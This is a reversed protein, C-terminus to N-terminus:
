LEVKGEILVSQFGTLECFLQKAAAPVNIYYGYIEAYSM